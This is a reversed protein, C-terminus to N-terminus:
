KEEKLTIMIRAVAVSILGLVVGSVVAITGEKLIIAQTVTIKLQNVMTTFLTVERPHHSLYSNIFRTHIYVTWIGNLINTVFGHLFYLQVTFRGILWASVLTILLWVTQELRPADWSITIYAMTLGFLSLALLLKWNM